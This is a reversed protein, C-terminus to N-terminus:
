GLVQRYVRLTERAAKEWSFLAARQLGKKSMEERLDKNKLITYLLGSLADVRLPDFTKGADGVVEPLSARNSTLVPAGCAMAELVTLGFGEYLSPLVFLDTLSYLAALDSDPIEGLYRVFTNLRILQSIDPYKADRRGVVVLEHPVKQQRRVSRMAEILCSLNKHPKLSGVFLVYPERLSYKKRIKNLLDPDSVKKFRGSAAEPIVFIKEPPVGCFRELLDQKTHGSVAIVACAKKEIMQFMAATYARGFRSPFSGPENLYILDHVTVVLKKPFFVPINFHPVHLLDGDLSKVLVEAQELLGYIGSSARRFFFKSNAQSKKPINKLFGSDSLFIFDFESVNSILSDSLDSIYRGIGAHRWMRADFVIRHRAPM